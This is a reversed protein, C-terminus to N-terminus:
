KFKSLFDELKANFTKEGMKYSSSIGANGAKICQRLVHTPGAQDGWTFAYIYAFDHKINNIIIDVCESSNLDKADRYKLVTNYLADKVYTNSYYALAETIAGVFAQDEVTTPIAFVSCFDITNSCYSDQDTNWKPYPLIGYNVNTTRLKSAKELHSATFAAKGKMLMGIHIEDDTGGDFARSQNLGNGSTNYLIHMLNAIDIMKENGNASVLSLEGKSNRKTFPQDFAFVFADIATNHNAAFGYQDEVGWTDDGLNATCQSVYTYFAEYTWTGDKVKAYVEASGGQTTNDLIDQDMFMATCSYLYTLSLPGAAVYTHNNYSAADLYDKDWWEAELNIHPMQYWDLFNGTTANPALRYQMGAALSYTDDGSMVTNNIPNLMGEEFSGTVPHYVFKVGYLDEVARNRAFIADNIVAGSQAEDHVIEYAYNERYIISYEKGVWAPDADPLPLTEVSDESSSEEETGQENGKCAVLTPILMCLLLLIALIRKM